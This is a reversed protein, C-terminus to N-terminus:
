GTFSLFSLRKKATKTEFIPTWSIDKSFVGVKVMLLDLTLTAVKPEQM